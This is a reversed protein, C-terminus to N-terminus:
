RIKCVVHPVQPDRKFWFVFLFHNMFHSLTKILPVFLESLSIVRLQQIYMLLQLFDLMM